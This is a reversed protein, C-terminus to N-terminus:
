KLRVSLGNATMSSITLSFKAKKKGEIKVSAGSQEVEYGAGAAVKLETTASRAADRADTKKAITVSISKAAAGQPTFTFVVVGDNNAKDSFQVEIENVMPAAPAAAPPPVAAPAPAAAPPPAAKDQAFTTSWPALALAGVVLASGLALHNARYM